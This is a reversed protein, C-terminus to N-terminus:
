PLWLEVRFGDGTPEAVLRGGLLEARERMGTLGYGGGGAGLAVPAGPGHDQVVLRTGDAGYDLRVDVHDAASHKRVNTLAEQATRYLALRAESTHERPTGTVTLTTNASADALERLREPGPLADGRLAAIAQRAETLGTAALHHARELGEVVEPDSGRGQALLRTGELQLALASLSHALVDHMDRAVRSREALAASQAVAGRSERLEDVLAEAEAHRDALRRVLRTVLYWPITSFALGLGTVGPHDNNLSLVILEGGLGIGAAIMGPVTALRLGAIAMVYYLCAFGAGHPQFRLLVIGAVSVACLGVFRRGAPLERRPMSLAVGGALLVTGVTVWLGDGSVGPYPKTTLISLFIVGLAVVGWVRLVPSRRERLPFNRMPLDAPLKV